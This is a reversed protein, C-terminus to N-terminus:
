CGEGLAAHGAAARPSRGGARGAGALGPPDFRPGAPFAVAPGEIAIRVDRGPWLSLARGGGLRARLALPGGPHDLLSLAVSADHGYYSVAEVRAASGPADAAERLLLQEPRLMVRAAGERVPRLLSLRGLACFALGGRVEGDLMVAEGVFCALEEDAPARYLEAPPAMQAMRGRRLVGVMSAMSLAESQDHTVLLGSAEGQRLAELVAQRTEARLSADLASFPEDLLVLRPRAALARALAVRQQEGGSLAHPARDAYGHPLGVLELLAEARARERRQPRKLGFLLNQAVSLHPFLAGDQAVYGVHRREPRLSRRGDVVVAGAVEVRGSDPAEFGCILRLLTTKGSGSAGLIAAFGGAPVDLDIGDLVGTAGFRKSLGRVSLAAAGPAAIGARAADPCSADPRITM